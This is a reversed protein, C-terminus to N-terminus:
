NLNKINSKDLKVLEIETKFLNFEEETGYHFVTLLALHGNVVCEVKLERVQGHKAELEEM